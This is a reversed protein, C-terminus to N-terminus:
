FEGDEASPVEVAAWAGNVVRMFKGNDSSTVSIKDQKNNLATYVADGSVANNSGNQVSKDVIVKKNEIASNVESKTYYNNLTNYVAGGSVANDSGSQVYTDVNIKKNEIATYVASSSVPNNSYSTVTNDVTIQINNVANYVAGSTILNQSYQYPTSDIRLQEMPIKGAYDLSAITNPHGTQIFKGDIKVIQSPAKLSQTHMIEMGDAEQVVFWVGSEPFDVTLDPAMESLDASTNAETVCFFSVKEGDVYTGNANVDFLYNADIEATDEGDQHTYTMEAGNVLEKPLIADSVKYCTFTLVGDEGMDVDKRVSLLGDTNGDWVIDEFAKTEYGLAMNKPLYKIDLTKIIESDFFISITHDTEQTDALYCIGVVDGDDITLFIFPEGTDEYDFGIPSLISANGFYYGGIDEDYVGTLEYSIGDFVFNITEDTLVSPVELVVMYALGEGDTIDFSTCTVNDIFTVRGGYAYFPRNKIYDPQTEDNQEFDAQVQETEGGSAGNGSGIGDPLQEVPIKGDVLDAKNAIAASINGISENARGVLSNMNELSSNVEEFSNDVDKFSENIQNRTYYNNKLDAKVEDVMELKENIESATYPLKYETAM